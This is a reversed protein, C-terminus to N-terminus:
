EVKRNTAIEALALATPITVRHGLVIIGLAGVLGVNGVAYGFRLFMIAGLITSIGTLFVPLTGFGHGRGPKSEAQQNM